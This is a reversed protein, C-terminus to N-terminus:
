YFKGVGRETRLVTTASCGVIRGVEAQSLGAARLNLIVATREALAARYGAREPARRREAYERACTKCQGRANDNGNGWSHGCSRLRSRRETGSRQMNEAHTVAELHEPWFCARSRCGREWVHDIEKGAPIPGNFREYAVRHVYEPHEGWRCVGYGSSKGLPWVLCGNADRGLAGLRVYEPFCLASMVDEPTM